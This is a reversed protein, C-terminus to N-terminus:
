ERNSLFYAASRAQTALYNPFLIYFVTVATSVLIVFKTQRPMVKDIKLTLEGGIPEDFYMVKIVKLYYAASVVSALVALIVTIYYGADVANKFVGLKAFFGAFPPVGALSFLLISFCLALLPSDRSLGTLEEINELSRGYRSLSLLCGFAGITMIVYLMLYILVNEVALMGSALLGLAAFGMHSITSYALLRKLNRQFLATFAGLSISAIAFVM